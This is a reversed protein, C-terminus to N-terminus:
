GTYLKVPTTSRILILPFIFVYNLSILRLQVTAEQPPPQIYQSYGPILVNRAEQPFCCSEVLCVLRWIPIITKVQFCHDAGSDDTYYASLLPVNNQISLLSFLVYRLDDVLHGQVGAHPRPLM